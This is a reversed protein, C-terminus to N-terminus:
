VGFRNRQQNFNEKVQQSTLPARYIALNVIRCNFLYLTSSRELAGITFTDADTTLDGLWYHDTDSKVMVGDVYIYTASGDNVCTIHHWQNLSIADADTTFGKDGAGNQYIVFQIKNNTYYGLRM